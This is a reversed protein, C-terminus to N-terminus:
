LELIVKQQKQMYKQFHHYDIEVLCSLFDRIDEVEKDTFTEGDKCLISKCEDISLKTKVFDKM